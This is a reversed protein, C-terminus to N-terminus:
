AISCFLVFCLLIVVIFTIVDSYQRLIQLGSIFAYIGSIMNINGSLLPKRINFCKKNIANELALNVLLWNFFIVFCYAYYMQTKGYKGQDKHHWVRYCSM